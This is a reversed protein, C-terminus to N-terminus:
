EEEEQKQDIYKHASELEGELQAVRETLDVKAALREGSEIELRGIEM